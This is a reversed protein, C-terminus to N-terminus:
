KLIIENIREEVIPSIMEAFRSQNAITLGLFLDINHTEEFLQATDSISQIFLKGDESIANMNAYLSGSDMLSFHIGDGFLRGRARKKTLTEQRYFPTSSGNVQKGDLLQEKNLRVADESMSNVALDIISDFAFLAEKINDSLEHLENM